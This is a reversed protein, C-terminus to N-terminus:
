TKLEKSGINVLAELCEVNKQLNLKNVHLELVNVMKSKLFKSSAWEGDYFRHAKGIYSDANLEDGNIAEKFYLNLRNINGQTTMEIYDGVVNESFNLRFKNLTLYQVNTSPILNLREQKANKAVTYWFKNNQNKIADFLEMGHILYIGSKPHLKLSTHIATKRDFFVIETTDIKSKEGRKVWESKKVNIPVDNERFESPFFEHTCRDYSNRGNLNFIVSEDVYESLSGTSEIIVNGTVYSNVKYAGTQKLALLNSSTLNSNLLNTIQTDEKKQEIKVPGYIFLKHTLMKNQYLENLFNKSESMKHTVDEIRTHSTDSSNTLVMIEEQSLSPKQIIVEKLFGIRSVQNISRNIKEDFM